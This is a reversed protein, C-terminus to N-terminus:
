ASPGIKILTEALVWDYVTDIDHSSYRDMVYKRVKVFESIMKKKISEVNIIYIGGNFEWVKPCGQRIIYDGNKSKELWGDINEEFLNFYPNSKTETVSVVMETDENYLSLAEKIHASSRFPSTPQLLVLTDPTLGRSEIFSLAHLLVDRMGATDSSLWAPRIFPVKIGTKEVCYKIEEDDTSILIEEDKFVKRAAEITYYILPKGALLKVNKGPVGKSGSRAPIVVLPKM